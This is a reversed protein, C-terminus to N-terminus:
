FPGNSPEATAMRLRSGADAHRVQRELMEFSALSPLVEVFDDLRAIGEGILETTQNPPYAEQKFRELGLPVGFSVVVLHTSAIRLMDSIVRNIHGDGFGYGYTVLVANPRCIAAAFDRFLEAYPYALTEVDKAPNPYIVVSEAPKTPIGPHDVPAGFPLASKMIYRGQARWEVSGHLKGLRAVGELYRPEGRIGPPSYHMDIDLRSASFRPELVGVFRDIFRLGLLDGAFELLRDYNTTFLGLRDRGVARSAFPVLMRQLVLEAKVGEDTRRQSKERLAREFDLVGAILEFMVKNVGALVADREDENGLVDFGEALALASRVQDEVNATRGLQQATRMAHAQVAASHRDIDIERNMTPPPTGVMDGIGLSLGNGTLLSLHESQLLAALWSELKRREAGIVVEAVSTGDGTVLVESGMRVVNTGM